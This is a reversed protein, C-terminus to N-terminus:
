FEYKFKSINKGTLAKFATRFYKVDSFGCREAIEKQSYYETKLLSIAYQIRLNELYKKPSMGYYQNFKRRFYAESVFARRALCSVTLTPDSLNNKMYEASDYIFESKTKSIFSGDARLAALIKYFVSTVYYKYGADKANWVALAEEFLNQYVSCNKPNFVQIEDTVCNYMDFHFVIIREDGAIRDYDVNAPVFSISNAGASIQRNKYLFYNSNSALRFSLAYFPRKATHYKAKKQTFLLVDLINVSIDDSLM